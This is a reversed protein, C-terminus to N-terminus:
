AGSTPLEATSRNASLDPSSPRLESEGVTAAPPSPSNPDPTDMAQMKRRLIERDKELQEKAMDYAKELRDMAMDQALKMTITPDNPNADKLRCYLLAAQAPGRFAQQSQASIDELFSYKGAAIDATLERCRRDYEEQGMRKKQRYLADWARDELWQEYLGMVELVLPSLRYERGQFTITEEM